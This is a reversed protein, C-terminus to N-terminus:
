CPAADRLREGTGDCKESIDGGEAKLKDVVVFRLNDLVGGDVGPVIPRIVKGGMNPRLQIGVHAAIIVARHKQEPKTQIVRHEPNVRFPPM